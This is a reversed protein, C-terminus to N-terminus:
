RQRTDISGFLRALGMMMPRTLSNLAKSPASKTHRNNARADGNVAAGVVSVVKDRGRERGEEEDEEHREEKLHRSPVHLESVSTEADRLVMM